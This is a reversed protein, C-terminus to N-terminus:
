QEAIVAAAAPGPKMIERQRHFLDSVYKIM